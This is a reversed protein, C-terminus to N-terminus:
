NGSILDKGVEYFSGIMLVNNVFIILALKTSKLM